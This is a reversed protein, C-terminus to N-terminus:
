VWVSAIISGNNFSTSNMPVYGSQAFSSATPPTPIVIKVNVRALNPSTPGNSQGLYVIFGHRAVRKNVAEPVGPGVAWRAAVHIVQHLLNHAWVLRKLRSFRDYLDNWRVDFVGCGKPCAKPM